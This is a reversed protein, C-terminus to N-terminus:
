GNVVELIADRINEWRTEAMNDNADMWERAWRAADDIQEETLTPPIRDDDIDELTSRVDEKDFEHEQERYADWMEHQTLEIEVIKGNIIRKITM